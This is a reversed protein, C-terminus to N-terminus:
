HAEGWHAGWGRDVVLPVDLAVVNQMHEVVLTELADQEDAPAEFVLEDHVTLLMRSEMAQAGIARHVAIMALKIIDAASGQIPTNRAVREAAERQVRNDSRLDPLHRARGFLTSVLGRERGEAVVREMYAAVGAYRAFFAKIYRAAEAREIHLNRALAFQTQGYIVAYNVTKARGRMERTLAEEAVGFIAQATRAHVDAGERFSAILEADHSLHALVRLEIQSYDASLLRWGERPVFASRIERGVETRIPINQLNPDTSSLRGTAAVAQRFDTHIRGTRAHIQKPLSDLYTNKLKALMRHELIVRPLEHLAALEELVAQDTSRATKTRKVAPLKLEDFLIAELQRPSGVNFDRGALEKCRAELAGLRGAIEHSLARLRGADVRIGTREVDSLVRVLPLEIEVLLKACGADILRPVLAEHARTVVGAARVARAAVAPIEASALTGADKGAPLLGEVVAPSLALDFRAVDELRHAHREPDILYSALGVDFAVGHLAVGREALLTMERKADACWKAVAADEMVARLRSLARAEPVQDPRGLYAHGLPLYARGDSWAFGLGVLVGSMPHAGAMASVLSFRGARGLSDALEGLAADDLVLRVPTDELGPADPAATGLSAGADGVISAARGGGADADPTGATVNGLQALLRTFGLTSFLERLRAPDRTGARLADVDRDFRLDDRLTVLDRSLYAQDRGAELKERLGKREVQDLRAYLRDLDDFRRLLEVATKPGVSPVGPVNDSSDGVLALYDRVQAPPVGLKAETEPAGFVVGRATDLMCTDDGVLQLLDKDSSVIVTFIGRERAQRVASAILDDAEFGDRQLVPLALAEVVEQVRGMQQALDPPMSPRNAKYAEYREHRFSPARSDMAIAIRAPTREALLKLLMTTVGLVAHTPEGGPSVLPPLAHYARFVYGSVDIVYLTRADGPPPLATPGAGTAPV